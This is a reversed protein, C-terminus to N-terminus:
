DEFNDTSVFSFFIRIRFKENKKYKKKDRVYEVTWGSTTAFLYNSEIVKRDELLSKYLYEITEAERLFTFKPNIGLAQRISFIKDQNYECLYQIQEDLIKLEKKTM